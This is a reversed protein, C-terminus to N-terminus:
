LNDTRYSFKAVLYKVLYKKYGKIPHAKLCSRSNKMFSFSSLNESCSERKGYDVTMAALFLRLISSTLILSKSKM